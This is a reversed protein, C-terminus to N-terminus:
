AAHKIGLFVGTLNVSIVREFDAKDNDLLNAKVPDATAANNVMIDLKGYKHVATAIAKEVDSESSVDCHVFSATESNLNKCVLKGLDDRIDAIIVTAGHKLFLRATSEGIGGAGGTIM